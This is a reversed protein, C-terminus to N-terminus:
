KLKGGDGARIIRRVTSYGPKKKWEKMDSLAVRLDDISPNPEDTDCRDYLERYEARKSRIIQYSKRWKEVGAETRPFGPFPIERDSATPGTQMEQSISDITDKESSEAQQQDANLHQDVLGRGTLAKESVAGYRAAMTATLQQFFELNLEILNENSMHSYDCTPHTGWHYRTTVVETSSDSLATLRITGLTVREDREPQGDGDYWVPGTVAEYKQIASSRSKVSKLYPNGGFDEVHNLLAATVIELSHPVVLTEMKSPPYKM